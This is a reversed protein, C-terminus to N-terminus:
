CGAQDRQIDGSRQRDDAHHDEMEGEVQRQEPLDVGPV